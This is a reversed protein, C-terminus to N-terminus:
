GERGRGDRKKDWETEGDETNDRWRWWSVKVRWGLVLHWHIKWEITGTKIVKEKGKEKNEKKNETNFVCFEM